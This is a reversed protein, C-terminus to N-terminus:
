VSEWSRSQGWATMPRISIGRHGAHHTITTRAPEARLGDV